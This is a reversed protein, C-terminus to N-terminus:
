VTTAGDYYSSGNWRRWVLYMGRWLSLDNYMDVSAGAAGGNKWTNAAMVVGSSNKFLSLFTSADANRIQLGDNAALFSSQLGTLYSVLGQSSVSTSAPAAVGILGALTVFEQRVTSLSVSGTVPITM